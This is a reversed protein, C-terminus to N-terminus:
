GMVAHQHGDEALSMSSNSRGTGPGDKQFTGSTEMASLVISGGLEAARSFAVDLYDVMRVHDPECGIDKLDSPLM